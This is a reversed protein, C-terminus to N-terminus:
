KPYSKIILFTEFFRDTLLLLQFFKRKSVRNALSCLIENTVDQMICSNPLLWFSCVIKVHMIFSTSFIRAVSFDSNMLLDIQKM